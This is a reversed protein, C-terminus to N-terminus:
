DSSGAAYACTRQWSCRRLSGVPVITGGRVDNGPDEGAALMFRCSRVPGTPDAGLGPHVLRTIGQNVNGTTDEVPELYFRASTILMDPTSVQTKTYFGVPEVLPHGSGGTSLRGRRRRLPMRVTRIPSSRGRHSSSYATSSSGRPVHWVVPGRTPYARGQVIQWGDIPTPCLTRVPGGPLDAYRDESRFDVPAGWEDLTVVATVTHGSDTLSV